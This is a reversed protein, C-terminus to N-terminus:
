PIPFKRNESGWHLDQICHYQAWCKTQPNASAPDYFAQTSPLYLQHLLNKKTCLPAPVLGEADRKMETCLIQLPVTFTMPQSHCQQFDVILVLDKLQSSCGDAPELHSSAAVEAQLGSSDLQNCGCSLATDPSPCYHWVATFQRSATCLATICSMPTHLFSLEFISTVPTYYCSHRLKFSCSPSFLPPFLLHVFCLFIYMAQM